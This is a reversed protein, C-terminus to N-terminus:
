FLSLAESACFYLFLLNTSLTSPIAYSSVLAVSHPILNFLHFRQPRLFAFYLPSIYLTSPSSASLLIHPSSFLTCQERWSTMLASDSQSSLLLPSLSSSSFSFLFTPSPFILASSSPLSSLLPHISFKLNIPHVGRVEGYFSGMALVFVIRVTDFLVSKEACLTRILTSGFLM